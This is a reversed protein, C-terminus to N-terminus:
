NEFLKQFGALEFGKSRSSFLNILAAGLAEPLGGPVIKSIKFGMLNAESSCNEKSFGAAFLGGRKLTSLPWNRRNQFAKLLNLDKPALRNLVYYNLILNIASNLFRGYERSVL